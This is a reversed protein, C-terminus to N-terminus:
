MDALFYHQSSVPEPQNQLCYQHCQKILIAPSLQPPKNEMKDGLGYNLTLQFAIVKLIKDLIGYQSIDRM